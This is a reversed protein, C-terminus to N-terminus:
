APWARPHVHTHWDTLDAGLAPVDVGLRRLIRVAPSAGDSLLGWLLDERGSRARGGRRRIWAAVEVAKRSGGDLRLHATPGDLTLRLPRLRSRRLTWLAPDDPRIGTARLVQRRVEGADIGLAALLEADGPAAPGGHRRTIEAHVAAPSVAVGGRGGTLPGGAALGALLFEPGLVLRRERAAHQGAAVLAAQAAPTFEALTIM